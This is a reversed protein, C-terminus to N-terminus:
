RHRVSPRFDRPEIGHKRLKARLTSVNVGLRHAAGHVGDVRGQTAQLARRLHEAIIAELPVIDPGGASTQVLPGNDTMVPGLTGPHQVDGVGGLAADLALARGDGLIVARELVASLERVNGPWSYTQLRRLDAARIDPTPLGLRQAARTVFHTTLAPIDEPHERLPPLILPFVALRYWLDERFRGAQVMNPLDRHTAAIVRVNVTLERESGVRQVVGDQLVRLLRVQAAPTLEGIEDLFLTGGDAREFWGRRMQLAGTFSGREHGFLESDILEPPVAGCNVRVFPGDHRPSREHIARAIVEKGSGTEGLILVTADTSAVQQVRGMVSRLGRDSGIVTENLSHRGMRSLLTQRDAVAAASLRRLERVRLDNKVAAALPALAAEFAARQSRDFASIGDAAVVVVLGVVRDEALLPGVLASDAQVYTTVPLLASDPPTDPVRQEVVGRRAWAQIAFLAAADSIRPEAQGRVGAPTWECLCTWDSRRADIEDIRLCSMPLQPLLARAFESVSTGIDLHRGVERWLALSVAAHKDQEAM